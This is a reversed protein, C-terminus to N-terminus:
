SCFLPAAPATERRGGLRFSYHENMFIVQQFLIFHFAAGPSPGTEAPNGNPLRPDYKRGHDNITSVFAPM